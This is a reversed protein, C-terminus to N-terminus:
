KASAGADLSLSLPFGHPAPVASALAGFPKAAPAPAEENPAAPRQSSSRLKQALERLRRLVDGQPAAKPESPELGNASADLRQTSAILTAGENRQSAPKAGQPFESGQLLAGHQALKAGQSLMARDIQAQAKADEPDAFALARAKARLSEALAGAAPKVALAEAPQLPIIQDIPSMPESACGSLALSLALAAGSFRSVCLFGCGARRPLPSLKQLKFLRPTFM